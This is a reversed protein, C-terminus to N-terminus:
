HHGEIVMVNGDAGQCSYVRDITFDTPISTVSTGAAQTLRSMVQTTVDIGRISFETLTFGLNPIAAFFVITWSISTGGLNSFYSVTASTASTSVVQLTIGSDKLGQALQANSVTQRVFDGTDVTEASCGSNTAFSVAYAEGGPVNVAKVVARYKGAPGSLHTIVPSGPQRSAHETGGPDFVSLTMLSGPYCLAVTVTGGPSNYDVEATDGTSLKDGTVTQVSGASNGAAVAKSCQAAMAFPDQPEPLIPRPPSLTGKADAEIEQGAKIIATSKGSVKVSGDFVKILNSCDARVLVEFITGRVQASVSHGGVNFTAGSILHQINSFTRGVRQQIDAAQLSGNKNLQTAKVTVVTNPSIRTYSGDPYNIGGRGSADTRVSTGPSLSEGPIGLRYSTSDTSGCSPASGSGVEVKPAIVVLSANANIAASAQRIFFYWGGGVLLIALVVFVGLCGLCGGGCGVCGSKKAPPTPTASPTVPAVPAAPAPPPPPQVAMQRPVM